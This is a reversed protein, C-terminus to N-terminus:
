APTALIEHLQIFHGEPDKVQGVRLGYEAYDQVPMNVTGGAAVAAAGARAAAAVPVAAAAGAVAAAAAM